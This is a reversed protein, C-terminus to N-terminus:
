FFKYAEISFDVFFYSLIIFYYFNNSLLFLLSDEFMDGVLMFLTEYSLKIVNYLLKNSHQRPSLKWVEKISFAWILIEETNHIKKLHIGEVSKYVLNKFSKSIM